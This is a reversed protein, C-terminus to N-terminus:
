ATRQDPRNCYPFDYLDSIDGRTCVHFGGDLNKRMRVRWRYHSAPDEGFFEARKRESPRLLIYEAVSVDRHPHDAGEETYPRSNIPVPFHPYARRPQGNIPTTESTM